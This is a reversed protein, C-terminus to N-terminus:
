HIKLTHKISKQHIKLEPTGSRAPEEFIWRHTAKPPKFDIVFLSRILSLDPFVEFNKFKKLWGEGWNENLVKKLQSPTM